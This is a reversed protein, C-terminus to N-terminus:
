NACYHWDEPALNADRTKLFNDGCVVSCMIRTPLCGSTAQMPILLRHLHQATGRMQVLLHHARPHGAPPLCSLWSIVPQVAVFGHLPGGIAGGNARASPAARRPRRAGWRRRTQTPNEGRM